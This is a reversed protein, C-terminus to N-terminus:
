RYAVAVPYLTAKGPSTNEEIAIQWVGSPSEDLLGATASEGRDAYRARWIGEHPGSCSGAWYPYGPIGSPGAGTSMRCVTGDELTVVFPNSQDPSKSSTPQDSNLDVNRILTKELGFFCLYDVPSEPSKLCPDHVGNGVYCRFADARATVNSSQSCSSTAATRADLTRSPSDESGDRWPRLSIFKTAPQRSQVDDAILGLEELALDTNRMLNVHFCPIPSTLLNLLSRSVEDKTAIGLWDVRVGNLISTRAEMEYACPVSKKTTVGAQASGLTVVIDGVGAETRIQQRFLGQGLMIFETAGALSHVPLGAPWPALNRLQPSGSRLAKGAASDFSTLAHPLFAACLLDSKKLDASKLKGCYSLWLRFALGVGPTLAAADVGAAAIEAGISGTNPTGFTIVQSVKAVLDPGGLALAQRTALGGMSHAVVIVKEGSGDHLCNLAKALSPGINDDTVWRAAYKEYDFTFAATGGLDQANGILTRIPAATGIRSTLLDPKASFAGKGAEDHISTSTWGHIYIIPVYKGRADPQLKVPGGSNAKDKSVVPALALGPVACTSAWSAPDDAHAAPAPAIFLAATLVLACLFASALTRIRKM